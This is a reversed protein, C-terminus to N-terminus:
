ARDRRRTCLLAFAVFLGSFPSPASNCGGSKEESSDADDQALLDNPNEEWAEYGDADPPPVIGEWECWSRTGDECGARMTADIWDLFFDVRTDVGGKSACDTLDYAHSTVGIVRPAASSDSVVDMFTPGGSDGHCKRVDNANAGVQLEYQGLESLVSYGGYKKGASYPDTQSRQGWGVIAVKNGEKLQEAESPTPLYGLEADLLPEALFM